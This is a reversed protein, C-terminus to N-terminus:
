KSRITIKELFEGQYAYVSRVLPSFQFHEKKKVIIRFANAIETPM